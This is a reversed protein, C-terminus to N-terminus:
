ITVLVRDGSVEVQIKGLATRAPGQIVSGNDASFVSGHSDCKIESNAVNNM